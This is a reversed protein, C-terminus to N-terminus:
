RYLGERYEDIKDDKVIGKALNLGLIKRVKLYDKSMFDGAVINVKALREPNDEIDRIMEGYFPRLQEDLARPSRIGIETGFNPTMQTQLWYFGETSFKDFYNVTAKAFKPAKLGFVVPDWPFICECDARYSLDKTENLLIFRKGSRRIDGMTVSGIDDFDCFANKAPDLYKEILADVKASDAKYKLTLPGVEQDYYRRIDLILFETDNYDLARRIDALLNEFPVGSSLGHALVITGDRRTNLRICFM